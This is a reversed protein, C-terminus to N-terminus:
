SGERLCVALVADLLEELREVNMRCTLFYVPMKREKPLKVADKETCVLAEAGAAAACRELLRYTKSSLHQHDHFEDSGVITLDAEELGRRFSGADGIACFAYVNRGAPALPENKAPPFGAELLGSPILRSELLLAGPALLPRIRELPFGHSAARKVVVIDAHLLASAPERYPGAPLCRAETPDRDGRLMVIDLDRHLALHQFGDDLLHLDLDSRTAEALLGARHRDRGVVVLVGPLARALMLPEDGVVRVDTSPEVVMPDVQRRGRYGRSLIAVTLGRKSLEEALLKVMPTKGTGGLSINGVSVVPRALRRCRGTEPGYRRRRAIAVLAYLRSIPTAFPIKAFEAM